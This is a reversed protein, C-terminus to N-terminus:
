VPVLKFSDIIKYNKTPEIWPFSVNICESIYIYIYIDRMKKM